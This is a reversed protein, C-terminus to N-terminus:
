RMRLVSIRGYGHGIILYRGEPTFALDGVREGLALCDLGWLPRLSALDWVRVTGDHASTAALDGHPGLALGGLPATHGAPAIREAGSEMEWACIESSPPEIMALLRKSDPTFALRACATPRKFTHHVAGDQASLVMLTGDAAGAALCRGDPSFAATRVSGAGARFSGLRDGTRGDYRALVGGKQGVVLVKGDPSFALQSRVEKCAGTLEGRKQGSGADWLMVNGDKGASAFTKGDPNFVLALVAGAHGALVHCPPQPKGAEWAGLDWLRVAGDEAGSAVVKGDPRVAVASVLNTLRDPALLDKGTAADCTLLRHKGDGVPGESAVFCVTRGDASLSGGLWGTKGPLPFCGKEEGTTPDYRCFRRAKPDRTMEPATLLTKGDPTYALLGAGPTAITRLLQWTKTNWLTVAAGATATALVKGDPSFAVQQVWAAHERLAAVEGATTTDWVRAVKDHGASALWKGDRSFDLHNVGNPYHGELTHLLRGKLADWLKVKGDWGSSALQQGDPSFAVVWVSKKHGTLLLEEQGSTLSWIRVDNGTGAALRKSDPSFCPRFGGGKPWSLTRVLKSNRADIVLESHDRPVAILRGDPSWAPWHTWNSQPMEFPPRGLMAVLTPAVHTPDGWGAIRKLTPPLEAGEREDLPNPLNDPPLPPPAGEGQEAGTRGSRYAQYVGAAGGLVALLGVAALTRRLWRSRLEGDGGKQLRALHRALLEAVAAASPYRRQPDKAL